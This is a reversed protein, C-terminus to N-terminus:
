ATTPRSPRPAAREGSHERITGDTRSEWDFSEETPLAFGREPAILAIIERWRPWFEAKAQEDTDAVHGPSHVGVPLPPRGFKELARQFLQRALQRWWSRLEPPMRQNGREPRPLINTVNVLGRQCRRAAVRTIVPARMAFSSM